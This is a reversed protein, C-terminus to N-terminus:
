GSLPRTQALQLRHHLVPFNQTSGDLPNRLTPCSQAVSCRSIQEIM